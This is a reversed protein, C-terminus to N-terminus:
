AGLQTLYDEVDAKVGTLKGETTVRLGGATRLTLLVRADFATAHANTNCFVEFYEVEGAAVDGKFIYELSPLRKPRQAEQKDAFTQM